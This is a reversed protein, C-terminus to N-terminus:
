DDQGHEHDYESEIEFSTKKVDDNRASPSAIKLAFAYAM